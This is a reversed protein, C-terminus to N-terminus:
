ARSPPVLQVAKNELIEILSTANKPAHAALDNNWFGYVKDVPLDELRDAWEQITEAPYNFDAGTRGHWRVYSFHATVIDDIVMEPSDVLCLAVDHDELIDFTTRTLWSRDRFEIALEIDDPIDSLVSDLLDNDPGISIPLQLM